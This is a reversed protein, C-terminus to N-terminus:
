RGRDRERESRHRRYVGGRRSGGELLQLEGGAAIVPHELEGAGDGVEGTGVVDFGGVEGFRELVPRPLSPTYVM